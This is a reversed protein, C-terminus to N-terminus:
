LSRLIMPRKQPIDDRKYPEKAFSVLSKLSGVLRLWGMGTINRPYQMSITRIYDSPHIPKTGYPYEITYQVSSLEVIVIITHINYPYQVFITQFVTGCPYEITYQVSSLQVLPSITHINYAYQVFITQFHVTRQLLSLQVIYICIPGDGFQM